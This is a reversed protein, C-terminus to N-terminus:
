NIKKELLLRCATHQRSHLEPTDEGSTGDLRAAAAEVPRPLVEAPHEGGDGVRASSRFGVWSSACYFPHREPGSRRLRRPLPKSSRFLTPYPFLPPRPPRRNM